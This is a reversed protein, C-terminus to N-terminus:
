RVEVLDAHVAYCHLAQSGILVELKVVENTEYRDIVTALSGSPVSGYPSARGDPVRSWVPVVLKSVDFGPAEREIKPVFRLRQSLTILAGPAINSDITTGKM